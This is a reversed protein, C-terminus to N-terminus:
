SPFSSFQIIYPTNQCVIYRLWPIAAVLMNWPNIMSSNSFLSGFATYLENPKEVSASLSDFPYLFGALGIIDLTTKALWSTMNISNPPMDATDDAELVSGSISENIRDRMQAIM